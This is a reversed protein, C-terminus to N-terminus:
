PEAYYTPTEGSGGWGPPPPPPPNFDGLADPTTQWGLFVWRGTTMHVTAPQVEAEYGDGERWFVGYITDEALGVMDGAPLAITTGDAMYANFAAVEITNADPASLPYAVSRGVPIRAGEGPPPVLVGATVPGLVLRESIRSGIRYSVAAEYDTGPTLGTIEKREVTPDEAGAGAWAAAGVPRFEFVVSQAMANDVEGTLVLAPISAGNDTFNEATLTWEGEAPPTVPPVVPGIVPPAPPDSSLGLAFPYKADTESVFTVSVIGSAADYEANLCLCKVGDLLFGPESITFAMGPAIRQLYPKLPIVGAIGERTHAIQLGALQVAQTALPVYPFDLGRPRTGNDQERWTAFSVEDAPHMQWRHAESWFRPRITNIRDIRSAATDIELPGATDRATITVVSARPAARQICSIKGARQAYIAGGAQLFADLVQSKDDDTTPYAAVKWGNADAVNAAVVFAPFDIGSPAAGIGGVQYDVGPAGKGVPGEWLGLSWKLAWLIPNETWVWTAPNDLRCGGEGGPYTSDLRPDYAFLGEVTVLPKVEGTPYATRKSNEGLVLMYGAKGSMKHAATWDPLVAGNKLGPPSTIAAAEPQSGARWRMWMEGEWQSTIAKGDADFTVAEDDGKFGVVGKIPGAGSLVSVFGYYMKDPGFTDLHVVSGAVGVRGAAFPIPANPDLTWEFTKGASGVQPQLASMAATIAVNLAVKMAVSTLPPAAAPAAAAVAPAAASFASAAAAFIQPM